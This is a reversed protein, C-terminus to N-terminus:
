GNDKRELQTLWIKLFEEFIMIVKNKSSIYNEPLIQLYKKDVFVFNKSRNHKFVVIPILGKKEANPEAQETYIKHIKTEGSLIVNLSLDLDKRFKCEVSVPFFKKLLGLDIDGDSRVFTGSSSDRQPKLNENDVTNYLIKYPKYNNYFFEHLIKAIKEEYGKGKVKSYSGV